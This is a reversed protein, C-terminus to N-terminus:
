IGPVFWFVRRLQARAEHLAALQVNLKARSVALRDSAAQLRGRAEDANRMHAEIQAATVEIRAVEGGLVGGVRKAERYLQLARVVAYVVGCVLAVVLVALALWFAM